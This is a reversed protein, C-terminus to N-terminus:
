ASATATVATLVDFPVAVGGITVSPTSSSFSVGTVAGSQTVGNADVYSATKGILSSAAAREQLSFDNTSTTSLTNLAEMSALQSTQTIMANSDMPSTPSQSKLQQVLLQLFMKSDM